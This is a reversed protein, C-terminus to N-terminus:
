ALDSMRLVAIRKGQKRFVDVYTKYYKFCEERSGIFVKQHTTEEIVYFEDKGKLEKFLNSM